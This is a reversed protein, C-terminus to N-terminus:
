GRDHGRRSQGARHIPGGNGPMIAKGGGSFGAFFHPEIFGTLIKVGAELFERNIWLEHGWATIGLSAQTSQDFANNQVIRYRAVIDEGLMGALEERTNERHTGLANFLTIQADPVHALEALVAPLILHNPTPRTIDSFVIGVSDSARAIDKLPPGDIPNQLGTRLAVKPEDVGAVFRSEILTVNAADSLEIQLGNKGYALNIQM